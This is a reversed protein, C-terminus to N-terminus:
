LDETFQSLTKQLILGFEKIFNGLSDFPIYNKFMYQSREINDICIQIVKIGKSELINVVGWVHKEASAGAYNAAYPLGDSIVILIKNKAKSDEIMIEGVKAIAYGDANGGKASAAFINRWDTVRRKSNYYEYLEVGGSETHRGQSHGYVFKNVHKSDKTSLIFSLAALIANKIKEKQAMSGSEDILIGFDLEFGPKPEEEYFINSSHSIAYLEDEDIDGETLEFDQNIQNLKSALFGLNRAVAYSMNLAAKYVAQDVNKCKPIYINVNQYDFDSVDIINIKEERSKETEDDKQKNSNRAAEQKGIEEDILDGVQDSAASHEEEYEEGNNLHFGDVVEKYGGLKESDKMIEERMKQPILNYLEKTANVIDVVNDSYVISYNKDIYNDFSHIVDMISKKTYRPNKAGKFTDDILQIFPPILEPLLIKFLLYEIVFSSAMNITATKTKHIEITLTRLQDFFFVYGPFERLGMKEIRHDELINFIDAMLSDKFLKKFLKPVLPSNYYDKVSLVPNLYAASIDANTRKKHLMEHIMVAYMADVKMQQGFGELALLKTGLQIRNEHCGNFSTMTDFKFTVNPTFENTIHNFLSYFNRVLFTHAAEYYKEKTDYEYKMFNCSLRKELPKFDLIKARDVNYYNINPKISSCNEM